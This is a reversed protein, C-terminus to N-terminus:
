RYRQLWFFIGFAGWFVGIALSAVELGGALIRELTQPPSRRAAVRGFGNATIMVVPVAFVDLVTEGPGVRLLLWCGAIFLALAVFLPWRAGVPGDM